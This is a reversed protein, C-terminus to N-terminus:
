LSPSESRMCSVHPKLDQGLHQATHSESITGAPAMAQHRACTNSAQATLQYIKQLSDSVSTHCLQAYTLYTVMTM